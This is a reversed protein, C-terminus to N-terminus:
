RQQCAAQPHVCKTGEMENQMEMTTHL